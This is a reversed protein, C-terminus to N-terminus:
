GKPPDNADELFRDRIHAGLAVADLRGYLMRQALSILSCYSAVSAVPDRHTWVIEVDPFVALLADIDAMLPLDLRTVRWARARVAAGSEPLDAVISAVEADRRAAAPGGGPLKAAEDFSLVAMWRADGAREGQTM